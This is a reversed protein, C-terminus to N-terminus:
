RPQGQTAKQIAAVIADLEPESGDAHHCVPCFQGLKLREMVNCAHHAMIHRYALRLAGVAEAHEKHPSATKNSTSPKMVEDLAAKAFDGPSGFYAEDHGTYHAIKDLAACAQALRDVAEEPTLTTTWQKSLTM